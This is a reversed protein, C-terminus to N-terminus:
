ENAVKAPLPESQELEDELQQRRYLQAYLGDRELLEEHTQRGRGSAHNM